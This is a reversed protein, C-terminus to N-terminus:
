VTTNNGGKGGNKGQKDNKGGKTAAAQVDKDHRAKTGKKCKSVHDMLISVWGAETPVTFGCTACVNSM